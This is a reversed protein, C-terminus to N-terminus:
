FNAVINEWSTPPPPMATADYKAEPSSRALIHGVVARQSLWSM